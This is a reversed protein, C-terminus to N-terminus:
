NDDNPCNVDVYVTGVEAPTLAKGASDTGSMGHVGLVKCESLPVDRYGNTLNLQVNYGQARLQSIAASASNDELPAAAATGALALATTALVGVTAAGIAFRHVIVGEFRYAPSGTPQDSRIWCGAEAM